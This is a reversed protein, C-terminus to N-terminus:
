LNEVLAKSHSSSHQLKVKIISTPNYLPLVCHLTFVVWAEAKAFQSAPDIYM